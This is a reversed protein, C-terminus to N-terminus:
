KLCLVILFRELVPLLLLQKVIVEFGAALFRRSSFENKVLWTKHVTYNYTHKTLEAYLKLECWCITVLCPSMLGADGNSSLTDLVM